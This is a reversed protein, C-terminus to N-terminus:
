SPRATCESGSHSKECFWCLHQFRCNARTCTGKNCNRCLPKNDSTFDKAGQPLAPPPPVQGIVGKGTGKAGKAGKSPGQVRQASRAEAAKQRAVEKIEELRKAKSREKKAKKKPSPSTGTSTPAHYVEQTPTRLQRKAGRALQPYM